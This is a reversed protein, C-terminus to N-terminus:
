MRCVVVSMMPTNHVHTHTHTEQTHVFLAHQPVGKRSVNDTQRDCVSVCMCLHTFVCVCVCALQQQRSPNSM